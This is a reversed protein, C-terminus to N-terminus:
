LDVQCSCKKIVLVLFFIGLFISFIKLLSDKIVHSETHVSDGSSVRTEQM